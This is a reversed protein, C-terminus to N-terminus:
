ISGNVKELKGEYSSSQSPSNSVGINDSLDTWESNGNLNELNFGSLSTFKQLSTNTDYKYAVSTNTELGSDNNRILSITQHTGDVANLKDVLFNKVNNVLDNSPMKYNMEELQGKDLRNEVDTMTNDTEESNDEEHTTINSNFNELDKRSIKIKKINHDHSLGEIENKRTISPKYLPKVAEELIFKALQNREENSQLCQIFIGRFLIFCSLFPIFYCIM